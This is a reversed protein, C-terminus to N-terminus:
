TIMRGPPFQAGITVGLATSQQLLLRAPRQNEGPVSQIVVDWTFV